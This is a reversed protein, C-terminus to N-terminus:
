RYYALVVGTATHLTTFRFKHTVGEPISDAATPIDGNPAVCSGGYTAAANIAVASIFETVDTHSGAGAVHTGAALRKFGLAGSELATLELISNDNLNAM